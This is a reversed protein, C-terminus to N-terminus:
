LVASHQRGTGVSWGPSSANGAVKALLARFQSREEPDLNDVLPVEDLIRTRLRDM